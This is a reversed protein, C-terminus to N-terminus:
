VRSTEKGDFEIRVPYKQKFVNSHKSVLLDDLRTPRPDNTRIFSMISECTDDCRRGDVRKAANALEDGLESERKRKAAPSGKGLKNLGKNNSMNRTNARLRIQQLKQVIEASNELKWVIRITGTTWM